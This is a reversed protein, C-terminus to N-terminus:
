IPQTSSAFIEWRGYGVVGGNSTVTLLFLYQRDAGTLVNRPITFRFNFGNGDGAYAPDNASTQLVDFWVETIVLNRPGQVISAPPGTQSYIDYVLSKIDAIKLCNGEGTVANTGTGDSSTLRGYVTCSGNQDCDGSVVVVAV